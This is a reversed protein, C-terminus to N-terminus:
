APADESGEGRAAPASPDSPRHRADDELRRGRPKLTRQGTAGEGHERHQAAERQVPQESPRPARGHAVAVHAAHRRQQNAAGHRRHPRRKCPPAAANESAPMAASLESFRYGIASSRAAHSTPPAHAHRCPIPHISSLLQLMFMILFFVADLNSLTLANSTTPSSSPPRRLDCVTMTSPNATPKPSRQQQQLAVDLGGDRFRFETPGVHERLDHGCAYLVSSFPAAADHREDDRAALRRSDRNRNATTSRPRETNRDM